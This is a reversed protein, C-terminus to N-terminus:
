LGQCSQPCAKRQSQYIAVGTVMAAVGISSPRGSDRSCTRMTCSTRNSTGPDRQSGRLRVMFLWHAMTAGQILILDSLSTYLSEYNSTVFLYSAYECVSIAACEAM